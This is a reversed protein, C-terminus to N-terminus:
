VQERHTLFQFTAQGESGAIGHLKFSTTSRPLVTHPWHEGANLYTGASAKGGTASIGGNGTSLGVRLDVNATFLVARASVPVAVSTISTSLVSQVGQTSLPSWNPPTHVAGMPNLDGRRSSM